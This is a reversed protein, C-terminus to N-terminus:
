AARKIFSPDWCPNDDRSSVEYVQTAAKDIVRLSLESSDELCSPEEEKLRKLLEVFSSMSDKFRNMHDANEPLSTFITCRPTNVLLEKITVGEWGVSSSLKTHDVILVRHSTPCTAFARQPELEQEFQYRLLGKQEAFSVSRAGLFVLDPLLGNSSIARAAFQGVFSDISQQFTGGTNITQTSRFVEPHRTLQLGALTTISLCNTLFVLDLAEKRQIQLRFIEEALAINTTGPAMFLVNGYHILHSAIYNALWTKEESNEESHVDLWSSPSAGDDESDIAEVRPTLSIQESM